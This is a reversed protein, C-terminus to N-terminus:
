IWVENLNRLFNRSSQIKLFLIWVTSFLIPRGPRVLSEGVSRVSPEAGDNGLEPLGALEPRSFAFIPPLGWRKLALRPIKAFLEELCADTFPSVTWGMAMSQPNASISCCGTLLKLPPTTSGASKTSSTRFNASESLM